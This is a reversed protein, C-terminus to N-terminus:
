KVDNEQNGKLRSDYKFVGASLQISDLALVVFIQFLGGEFLLPLVCFSSPVTFYPLPRVTLVTNCACLFM